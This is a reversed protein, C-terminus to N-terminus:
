NLTKICTKRMKEKKRQQMRHRNLLLTKTYQSIGEPRGGGGGRGQPPLGTFFYRNEEIKDWIWYVGMTICFKHYIGNRVRIQSLQTKYCLFKMSLFLTIIIDIVLIIPSPHM